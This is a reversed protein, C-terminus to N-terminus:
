GSCNPIPIIGGFRLHAFYETKYKDKNTLATSTTQNVYKEELCVRSQM